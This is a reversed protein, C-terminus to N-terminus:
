LPTFTGYVGLSLIRIVQYLDIEMNECFDRQFKLKCEFDQFQLPPPSYGVRQFYFNLFFLKFVFFCGVGPLFTGSPEV